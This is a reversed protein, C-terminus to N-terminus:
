RWESPNQRWCAKALWWADVASWTQSCIMQLTNGVATAWSDRVQREPIAQKQQGQAGEEQQQEEDESEEEDDQEAAPAEEEQEAAAAAPQRAAQAVSLTYPV